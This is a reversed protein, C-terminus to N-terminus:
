ILLRFIETDEEAESDIPRIRGDRLASLIEDITSGSPESVQESEGPQEVAEPMGPAGTHVDEVPNRVDDLQSAIDAVSPGSLDEVLMRLQEDTRQSLIEVLQEYSRNRALPYGTAVCYRAAQDVLREHRLQQLERELQHAREQWNSAEETLRAIESELRTLHESTPQSPELETVALELGGSRLADFESDTIEVMVTGHHAWLEKVGHLGLQTFEGLTMEMSECRGEPVILVQVHEDDGMHMGMAKGKRMLCARVRAKQAPSLKARGLLRLGALVHAKDHAPFSRNPGCFASDPLRKRQKATLKAEAFPVDDVLYLESAPVLLQEDEVSPETQGAPDGARDESLHSEQQSEQDVDDSSGEAITELTETSDIPEAPASAGPETQETHNSGEESIASREVVSDTGMESVHKVEMGYRELVRAPEMWEMAGAPATFTGSDLSHALVMADSDSPVNVFSVEVFQIDHMIHYCMKLNGDWEYSQGRVHENSCSFTRVEEGCVSCTVRGPVQGISVTLFLGNLIYEIVQQDVIVADIELYAERGGRGRRVIRADTARGVPVPMGTSSLIGTHGTAVHDLLIPIAYPKTVTVYGAKVGDGELSEAPYYTYNRTVKNATIARLTVRLVPVSKSPSGESETYLGHRFAHRAQDSIKVSM